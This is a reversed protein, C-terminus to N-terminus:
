MGGEGRLLEELFRGLLNLEENCEKERYSGTKANRSLM